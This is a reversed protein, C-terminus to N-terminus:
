LALLIMHQISRGNIVLHIFHLTKLSMEKKTTKFMGLVTIRYLTADISLLIVFLKIRITLASKLELAGDHAKLHALKWRMSSNWTKRSLLMETSQHSGKSDNMVCRLFHCEIFNSDLISFNLEVQLQETDDAYAKGSKILKVAYDYLTDFHDSTHTVVDGQIDLLALDELITDEFEAQWIWLGLKLWSFDFVSVREKSPNTDDFRIILRGNYMKAFYKNLTAAKAHGIHLYGSPEPPFRTVVQGDV